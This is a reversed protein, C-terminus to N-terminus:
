FRVTISYQITTKNKIYTGSHYKNTIKTELTIYIQFINRYNTCLVLILCHMCNKETVTINTVIPLDIVM